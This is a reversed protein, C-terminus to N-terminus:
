TQEASEAIRPGRSGFRGHLREVCVEVLADDQARRVHVPLRARARGDPALAEVQDVAFVAPDGRHHAVPRLGAKVGVAVRRALLDQHEFANKRVLVAVIGGAAIKQIRLAEAM